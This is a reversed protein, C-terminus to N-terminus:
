DKLIRVFKGVILGEVWKRIKLCELFVRFFRIYKNDSRGPCQEKLSLSTSHKISGIALYALKENSLHSHSRFLFRAPFEILM